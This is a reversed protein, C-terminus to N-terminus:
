QKERESESMTDGVWANLDPEIDAMSALLNKFGAISAHGGEYSLEFSCDNPLFRVEAGSETRVVNGTATQEWPKAGVIQGAM